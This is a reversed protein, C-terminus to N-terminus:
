GGPTEEVELIILQTRFVPINESLNEDYKNYYEGVPSGSKITRLGWGLAASAAQYNEVKRLAAVITDRLVGLESASSGWDSFVVFIWFPIQMVGSSDSQIDTLITDDATEIIAYPANQSSGDLVSWNDITVDGFSFTTTLRLLERQLDAQIIAESM